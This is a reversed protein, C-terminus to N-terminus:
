SARSIMWIWIPPGAQRSTISIHASSTSRTPCFRLPSLPARKEVGAGTSTSKLSWSGAQTQASSRTFTSGETWRAADTSSTAATEFGGNLLTTNVPALQLRDFWVSDGLDKSVLRIVVSNYRGSNWTGSVYQWQNLDLTSDSATLNLDGDVNSLDIFADGAATKLYIWGAFAYDTNPTVAVPESTTIFTGNGGASKMAWTGRQARTDNRTYGTGETWNLADTASSGANEFSPSALTARALNIDDFWAAASLSGAVARITVSTNAGSNWTASLFEWSGSSAAHLQIVSPTSNAIDLYADGSTTSKYIWGSFVYDTNQQLGNVTQDAKEPSGARTSKLSWAGSHCREDNRTFSSQEAWSLADTSVSVAVEFSSNGVLSTGGGADCVAAAPMNFPNKAASTAFSAEREAARAMPTTGPLFLSIILVFVMWASFKRLWLSSTPM